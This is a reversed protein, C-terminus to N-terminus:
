VSLLISSFFANPISMLDFVEIFYPRGPVSLRSVTRVLSSFANSCFPIPLYIFGITPIGSLLAYEYEKQTYSKGEEDESGYRGGIIVVYYDCSDILKQIFTWQDENAAPFYEMGCPICNLELLAKMVELREPVLDEYTSSVFM